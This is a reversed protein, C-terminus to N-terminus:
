SSQSNVLQDTDVFAQRQVSSDSNTLVQAKNECATMESNRQFIVAEEPDSNDCTELPVYKRTNKKNSFIASTIKGFISSSHSKRHDSSSVPNDSRNHVPLSTDLSTEVEVEIDNRSEVHSSLSSAGFHSEDISSRYSRLNESRESKSMQGESSLTQMPIEETLLGTSESISNQPSIDSSLANRALRHARTVLKRIKSSEAKEENYCFLYELSEYVAMVFLFACSLTLIKLTKQSLPIAPIASIPPPLCVTSKNNQLLGGHM